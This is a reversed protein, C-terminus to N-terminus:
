VSDAETFYNDVYKACTKWMTKWLDLAVFFLRQRGIWGALHEGQSNYRKRRSGWRKKLDTM